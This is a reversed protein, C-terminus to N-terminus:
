FDLVWARFLPTAEREALRRRITEHYCKIGHPSLAADMPGLTQTEQLSVIKDFLPTDPAFWTPFNNEIWKECDKRFVIPEMRWLDNYDHVMIFRERGGTWEKPAPSGARGRAIYQRWSQPGVGAWDRFRQLGALRWPAIETQFKKLRPIPKSKRQVVRRM